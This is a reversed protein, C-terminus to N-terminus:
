EAARTHHAERAVMRAATVTVEALATFLAATSPLQPLRGSKWRQWTCYVDKGEEQNQRSSAWSCIM